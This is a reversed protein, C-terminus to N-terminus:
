RAIRPLRALLPEIGARAQEGLNLQAMALADQRVATEIAEDTVVAPLTARLAGPRAVYGVAIQGLQAAREPEMGLAVGAAEGQAFADRLAQQVAPAVRGRDDAFAALDSAPWHVDEALRHAEADLPHDPVPSPPRVMNREADPAARRGAPVAAAASAPPALREAIRRPPAAETARPSEPAEPAEGSPTPQPTQPGGRLLVFALEVQILLVAAVGLVIPWRNRHPARNM